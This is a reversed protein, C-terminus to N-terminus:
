QILRSILPGVLSIILPLLVNGGRQLISRKKKKLVHRNILLRIQKEYQKLLQREQEGVNLAPNHVLNKVLECIACLESDTAQKVERKPNNRKDLLRRLFQRHKRLREM